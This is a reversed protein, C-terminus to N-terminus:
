ETKDSKPLIKQVEVIGYGLNKAKLHCFNGRFIINDDNNLLLYKWDKTQIRQKFDSFKWHREDLIECKTKM